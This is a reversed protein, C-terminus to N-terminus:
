LFATHRNFVRKSGSPSSRDRGTTIKIKVNNDTRRDGSKFILCFCCIKFNFYHKSSTQSQIQGVPDNIVGAKPGIKAKAVFAIIVYVPVPINLHSYDYKQLSDALNEKATKYKMEKLGIGIEDKTQKKRQGDRQKKLAQPKRSVNCLLLVRLLFFMLIQEDFTQLLM